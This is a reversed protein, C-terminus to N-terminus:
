LEEDDDWVTRRSSGELIGEDDVGGYNIGYTVSTVGNSTCLLFSLDEQMIDVAPAIYRKKEMANM